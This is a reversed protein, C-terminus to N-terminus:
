VGPRCVSSVPTPTEWTFQIVMGHSYSLQLKQMPPHPSGYPSFQDLTVSRHARWADKQTSTFVGAATSSDVLTGTVSASNTVSVGTKKQPHQDFSTRSRCHTRLEVERFDFM